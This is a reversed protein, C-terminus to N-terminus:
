VDITFLIEAARDTSTKGVNQFWPKTEHLHFYLHSKNTNEASSNSVYSM